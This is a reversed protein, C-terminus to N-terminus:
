SRPPTTGSQTAQQDNSTSEVVLVPQGNGIQWEKSKNGKKSLLELDERSIKDAENTM